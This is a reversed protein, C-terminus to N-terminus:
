SFQLMDLLHHKEALLLVIIIALIGLGLKYHFIETEYTNEPDQLQKEKSKLETSQNVIQKNLLEITEKQLKIRNGYQTVLNNLLERQENQLAINEVRKEQLEKISGIKKKESNSSVQFEEKKQKKKGIASTKETKELNSIVALSQRKLQEPTDSAVVGYSSMLCNILVLFYVSKIKM